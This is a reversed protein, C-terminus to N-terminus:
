KFGPATVAIMEGDPTTLNVGRDEAVIYGIQEIGGLGLVKDRDELSITFMMEYDEGGNMVAIVPDTNLEEAMKFTESAIPLRDLFVKAGVGSARCVQLLDSALGDSLDIMSTPKVGADALLQNLSMPVEPSLQRRLLYEYGEFSPKPDAINKLVRGERDLLRLGMYAGGLDGTICIVDNIKAGSRYCIKDKDVRGVATVAISLGTVSSTTDGGVLDIGYHKCGLRIGEYLSDLEEVAFRSSIGIGLTLQTPTGNMAYIDSVAVTVAKYGLHQLPTYVLDFAIGELLLESSILVYHDGADIVAADDGIGKITTSHKNEFKSSLHDILGFEGYEAIDTKKETNM